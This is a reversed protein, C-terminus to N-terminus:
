GSINVNGLEALRSYYYAVIQPDNKDLGKATELEQMSLYIFGLEWYALGLIYHAWALDPKIKIISRAFNIVLDYKQSKAFKLTYDKFFGQLLEFIAGSGVFKLALKEAFKLNQNLNEPSLYEQSLNLLEQMEKIYEPKSEIKIAQQINEMAIHFMGHKKYIKAMLAHCDASAYNQMALVLIREAKQPEGADFSYKAQIYIKESNVVAATSANSSNQNNKSIADLNQLIIKNQIKVKEIEFSVSCLLSALFAENPTVSSNPADIDIEKSDYLKKYGPIYSELEEISKHIDTIAKNKLDDPLNPISKQANLFLHFIRNYQETYFPIDENSLVSQAACLYAFSDVEVSANISKNKMPNEQIDIGLIDFFDCIIDQNKLMKRDYLRLIVNEKGLADVSTKIRHLANDTFYKIGNEIYTEYFVFQKMVRRKRQENFFSKLFSDIRRFYFIVKVQHNPLVRQFFALEKESVGNYWENSILIDKNPNAAIEKIFAEIDEHTIEEFGKHIHYPEGSYVTYSYTISQPILLNHKELLEQKYKFLYAQVATSGTKLNGM